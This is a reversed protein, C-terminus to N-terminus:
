QRRLSAPHVAESVRLELGWAEECNGVGCLPKALRVYGTVEGYFLYQSEDFPYEAPWSFISCSWAPAIPALFLLAAFWGRAFSAARTRRRTAPIRAIGRRRALM